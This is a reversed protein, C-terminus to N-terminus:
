SVTIEGIWRRARAALDPPLGPLFAEDGHVLRNQDRMPPGYAVRMGVEDYARLVKRADELLGDPRLRQLPLLHVATTIGSEVMQMAGYLTELYLDPQKNGFRALAWLELPLDMTGLQFPTVAV